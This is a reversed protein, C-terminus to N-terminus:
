FASGEEPILLPALPAIGPLDSSLIKQYSSPAAGNLVAIQHTHYM